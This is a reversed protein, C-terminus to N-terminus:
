RLILLSIYLTEKNIINELERYLIDPNLLFNIFGPKKITPSEKLIWTGKPKQELIYKKITEAIKDAPKRTLKNVVMAINTAYDGYVEEPPKEVRVDPIGFASLKGAAQANKIATEIVERIGERIM